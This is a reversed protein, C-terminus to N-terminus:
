STKTNRNFKQASSRHPKVPRGRDEQEHEKGDKREQQGERKEGEKQETSM